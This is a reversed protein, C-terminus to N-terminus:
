TCCGNLAFDVASTRMSWILTALRGHSSVVTEQRMTCVATDSTAPMDIHHAMARPM